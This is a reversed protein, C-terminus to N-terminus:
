PQMSQALAEAKAHIANIAAPFDESLMPVEWETIPKDTPIADHDCGVSVIMDAPETHDATVLQPNWGVTYGQAEIAAQVRPINEADPEPGAVNISVNLGRRAAAARFYTAALLSKGASHPCMFLVHTPTEETM